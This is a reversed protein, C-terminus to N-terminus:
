PRDAESRPANEELWGAVRDVLEGSGFFVEPAVPLSRLFVGGYNREGLRADLLLVVGRDHRSRVLRGFGQRFRLVADPLLYTSFPNEGRAKLRECRAEVLPEDPVAFPLKGIALIELADGPFDVGEWFSATGLLVAGPTRAFRAAVVERSGSVEQGFVPARPGLLRVMQAYLKRVTSHATLLVLMRRGTRRAVEALLAAVEAEYAADGYEPLHQAQAVLCQTAYDFPSPVVMQRTMGPLGVRQVFSELSGAIALTASTYVVGGGAGLLRRVAPAVDLPSALLEHVRTGDLGVAFAWDENDGATLFDLAARTEGLIATLIELVGGADDEAGASTALAHEERLEAAERRAADLAQAARAIEGRVAAFVEDGDRYRQRAKRGTVAGLSLNVADLWDLLAARAAAVDRTWALFRPAFGEADLPLNAGPDDGPRARASWGAAALRGLPAVLADAQARGLRVSLHETAVADLHHAEDVVIGDTRGLISGEAFADSFLLAHNVVVLDARRAADRAMYVPCPNEGRCAPGRCTERRSAIERRTRAELFPAIEVLEGSASRLSWLLAQALDFSGEAVAVGRAARHLATRCVYNDRGLLKAFRLGTGGDTRCVQALGLATWLEPLDRAVLQHQLNRTHTSLVFRKGQTVSLLLAPLAYAITKGTGTGAEVVLDREYLLADLAAHAMEVQEARPEFPLGQTARRWAYLHDFAADLLEHPALAPWAFPGPGAAEMAKALAPAEVAAPAPAAAHVAGLAQMALEALAGHLMARLASEQPPLLQAALRLTEGNPELRHVARAYQQGLALASAAHVADEPALLALLRDGRICLAGSAQWPRLAAADLGAHVVLRAGGRPVAAARGNEFHCVDIEAGRGHVAIFDLPLAAISDCRL